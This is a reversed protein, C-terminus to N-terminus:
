IRQSGRLFTAGLSLVQRYIIKVRKTAAGGRQTLDRFSCYLPCLAASGCGFTSPAEIRSLIHVYLSFVVDQSSRLAMFSNIAFYRFSIAPTSDPNSRSIKRPVSRDSAYTAPICVYRVMFLTKSFSKPRWASCM